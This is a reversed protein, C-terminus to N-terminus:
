ARVHAPVRCTQAEQSGLNGVDRIVVVMRTTM